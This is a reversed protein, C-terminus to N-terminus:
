RRKDQSGFRQDIFPMCFREMEVLDSNTSIGRGGTRSTIGWCRCRSRRSTRLRPSSPTRLRSKWARRIRRSLRRGLRGCSPKSPVGILVALNEELLWSHSKQPEFLTVDALVGFASGLENVFPNPLVPPLPLPTFLSIAIWGSSIIPGIGKSNGPPPRRRDSPRMTSHCFSNALWGGAWM